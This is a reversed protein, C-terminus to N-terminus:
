RAPSRVAAPRSRAPPRRSCPPRRAATGDSATPSTRRPTRFTVTAWGSAAPPAPRTGCAPAAAPAARRRGRAVVIWSMRNRTPGTSAGSARAPVRRWRSGLAAPATGSAAPRRRPRLRDRARPRSSSRAAPLSSPSGPPSVVVRRVGISVLHCRRKRLARGTGPVSRAGTGRPGHPCPADVRRAATAPSRRLGRSRVIVLVSTFERHIQALAVASRRPGSVWVM